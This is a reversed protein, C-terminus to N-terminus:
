LATLTNVVRVQHSRGWTADHFVGMPWTIVKVGDREDYTPSGLVKAAVDLQFGYKTAAEIISGLARIRFFKTAGTRMTTFFNSGVTDAMMVIEFSADPVLEVLAAYSAQASDLPWVGGYRGGMGFTVEFVRLLKTTGLGGSTDDAFVEIEKGLIPVLAIETPTATLTIGTEIAKSIGDGSIEVTDRNFVMQLSNVRFGAVREAFNGDGQEVTFSKPTDAASTAAGFVWERAATGTATVGVTISTGVTGDDLVSSLPYIIETYTGRGSLEAGGSERGIPSLTPFKNGMPRFPEEFEANPDLDISLASLKKNAAVATGETVEVGIQVGQAVASREPM